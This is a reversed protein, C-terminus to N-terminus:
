RRKALRSAEDRTYFIGDKVFGSLLSPKVAVVRGRADRTTVLESPLGDLLHMPAPTGNAFCARYVQNTDRDLFAPALGLCGCEASVGGSGQYVQTQQQLMRYTLGTDAVGQPKLM